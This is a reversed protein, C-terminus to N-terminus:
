KGDGLLRAAASEGALRGTSFAITLNFGGTYGAVDLVEGAFYLGKLLKSEMTGPDIDKTDVGGITIIAEDFPGHGTISLRFNKLLGITALRGTKDIDCSRTDAKIGLLEPFVEALSGPLMTKLFNLFSRRPSSQFERLIRADLTAADLAPKLDVTLVIDKYGYKALEFSSSLVTPGSVGTHTFLLEGFDEYIIKDCKSFSVSVNKLTLGALREAFTEKTKVGVLAPKLNKVGHGFKAAFKYGDGTSGTLPYSLGGTAVIVAKAYIKMSNTSLLVGCVKGDEALIDTVATNYYIKVGLARLRERLADRVTKANQTVPFVRKGRETVTAVGLSEFYEIVDKNSFKSYASYMFKPNEPISDFFEERDCDNTLNCRGKGTICLKRGLSANKEVICVKLGRSAAALSAFIGAAGGGVTVADFRIGPFGSETFGDSEADIDLEQLKAREPTELTEPQEVIEVIEVTEETEVTEATVETEVTVETEATEATVETKM